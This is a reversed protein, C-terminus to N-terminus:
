PGPLSRIHSRYREKLEQSLMDGANELANSLISSIDNSLNAVYRRVTNEILAEVAPDLYIGQEDAPNQQQRRSSEVEFEPNKPVEALGHSSNRFDASYKDHSNTGVTQKARTKEDRTDRVEEESPHSEFQGSVRFVSSSNSDKMSAHMSQDLVSDVRETNMSNEPLLLSSNRPSIQSTDARGALQSATPSPTRKRSKKSIYANPIKPRSNKIESTSADKRPRGRKRKTVTGTPQNKSVSAADADMKQADALAWFESEKAVREKVEDSASASLRWPMELLNEQRRENDDYIVTCMGRLGTKMVRGPYYTKDGDWYVEIPDGARPVGTSLGEYGM